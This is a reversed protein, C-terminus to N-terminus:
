WLGYDNPEFTRVPATTFYGDDLHNLVPFRGQWINAISRARWSTAGPIASAPM